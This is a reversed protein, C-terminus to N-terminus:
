WFSGEFDEFEDLLLTKNQHLMVSRTSGETTNTGDSESERESEDAEFSFRLLPQIFVEEKSGHYELEQVVRKDKAVGLIEDSDLFEGKFGLIDDPLTPADWHPEERPIPKGDDPLYVVTANDAFKNSIGGSSLKYCRVLPTRTGNYLIASREHQRHRPIPKGDNPLSIKKANVPSSNTFTGSPLKSRRSPAAQPSQSPQKSRGSIKHWITRISTDSSPLPNHAQKAM